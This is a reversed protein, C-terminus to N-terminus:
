HNFFSLVVCSYNIVYLFTDFLKFWERVYNLIYSFIKLLILNFTRNSIPFYNKANIFIVEPKKSPPSLKAVAKTISKVGTAGTNRNTNNTSNSKVQTNTPVPKRISSSDQEKAPAMMAKQEALTTGGINPLKKFIKTSDLDYSKSLNDNEDGSLQHSQLTQKSRSTNNELPCDQDLSLQQSSNYIPAPTHYYYNDDGEYGASPYRFFIWM